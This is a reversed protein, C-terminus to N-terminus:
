GPGAVRGVLSQFLIPGGQWLPFFRRSELKAGLRRLMEPYDFLPFLPTPPGGMRDFTASDADDTQGSRGPEAM